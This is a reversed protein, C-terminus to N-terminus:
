NTQLWITLVQEFKNENLKDDFYHIARTIACLFVVIYELDLKLISLLEVSNRNIRPNQLSFWLYIAFKTM